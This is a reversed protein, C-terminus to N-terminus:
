EHGGTSRRWAELSSEIIFDLLYEHERLHEVEDIPGTGGAAIHAREEPTLGEWPRIFAWWRRIQKKRALDM